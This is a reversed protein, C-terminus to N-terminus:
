ASWSRRSKKRGSAEEVRGVPFALLQELVAFFAFFDLHHCIDSEVCFSPNMVAEKLKELDNADPHALACDFNQILVDLNALHSRFLM